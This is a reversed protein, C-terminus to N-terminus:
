SGIVVAGAISSHYNLYSQKFASLSTTVTPNYGYLDSLSQGNYVMDSYQVMLQGSGVDQYVKDVLLVHGATGPGNFSMVVNEMDGYQNYLSELCDNGAAKTASDSCNNFWQCGNAGGAHKFPFGVGREYLRRLTYHTCSVQTHAPDNWSCISSYEGNEARYSLQEDGDRDKFIHIQQRAWDPLAAPSPSSPVEVAPDTSNNPFQKDLADLLTNGRIKSAHSTDLETATNAVLAVKGASNELMSLSNMFRKQAAAIKGSFNNSLLESWSNNVGQLDASFSGFLNEYAAKLSLMEKSQELLLEPSLEFVDNM